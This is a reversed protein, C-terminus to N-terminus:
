IETEPSDNLFIRTCEVQLAVDDWMPHHPAANSCVITGWANVRSSERVAHRCFESGVSDEEFRSYLPTYGVWGEGFVLPIDRAEAYDQAAELWINLVRYMEARHLAYREYLYRDFAQPDCWDHVYMEGPAVITAELKWASGSPLRWDAAAPADPRLIGGQRLGDEDLLEIPERLGFDTTITDLVGYVYPHVALVDMNSPLLEMVGVPVRAWNVTVPVDPHARKFSDLASELRQKFVAMAKRDYNRIGELDNALHGTAAENHLEVFAVRDDVGHDRLWDLLKAHAAAMRAPREPEPVAHLADFWAPSSSFSPSQQYEWSSVIVYLNHRQCVQFLKLLHDLPKIKTSARVDYWRVRQGYEGGLAELELEESGLGSEFLLFPMACIRIANYGRDVAQQAAADLDEFPEGPGTRTYWTFDWLTIM